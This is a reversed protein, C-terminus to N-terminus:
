GAKPTNVAAYEGWLEDLTKGTQEKWIGDTYTHERMVKNLNIVLDKKYTKEIWLLFAATVRYSDTYKQTPKFKPLYWKAGVNDVGFVARAYDAIGETLWGPGNSDGYAQVIHMVEHTVVDIDTPKRLMWKPNFRVENGGTAAVGDYNRDIIFVVRKATNENYTKAEAPYVTYFADIMRKKVDVGNKEFTTDNNAFVLTYKGKSTSDLSLMEENGLKNQAQARSHSFGAVAIVLMLLKKM